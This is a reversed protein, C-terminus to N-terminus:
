IENLQINKKLKNIYINSFQNLQDNTKKEIINKIESEFNIDRKIERLNEVYLILFGGPIVIPKTFEGINIKNLEKKILDSVIEEKIWGLKGGEKSTDSISFNLAAESFNKEKILDTIIKIKNNLNENEGLNFVIESLLYEKQKNNNKVSLEIKNRDIKISKSFKEFILQKWLTDIIIKNKVFRTNLGKNKFFVEFEQINKFNFKFFYNKVIQEFFEDNIKTDKRFKLIEIQKVKEKILSNKAIEIKRKKEIKSFEINMISLFNIENFIDITTIIENNVKLLIKNEKSLIETVFIITSLISLILIKKINMYIM